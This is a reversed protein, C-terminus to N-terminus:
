TDHYQLRARSQHSYTSNHSTPTIARLQILLIFIRLVILSVGDLTFHTLVSGRNDSSMPISILESLWINPFFSPKISSSLTLFICIITSVCSVQFFDFAKNIIFYLFITYRLQRVASYNLTRIFQTLTRIISHESLRPEIPIVFCTFCHKLITFYM